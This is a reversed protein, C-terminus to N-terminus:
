KQFLARMFLATDRVTSALGGGGYLDYSPDDTYTDHDGEYRHARDLVGKPASELTELWTSRLGLRQYGLLNRLAAAMSGGTQRELIEGLLIYGTDSYSFVKGPAGYPKGGKM